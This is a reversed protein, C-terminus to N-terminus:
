SYISDFLLLYLYITTFQLFLLTSFNICTIALLYSYPLKGLFCAAKKQFTELPPPPPESAIGLNQTVKKICRLKLIKQYFATSPQGFEFSKPCKEGFIRNNIISLLAGFSGLNSKQFFHGFLELIGPPPPSSRNKFLM